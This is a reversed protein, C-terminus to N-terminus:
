AQAPAMQVEPAETFQRRSAVVLAVAVIAFGVATLLLRQEAPVGPLLIPLAVNAAGHMLTAAVVSRTGLYLWTLMFSIPIVWLTFAVIPGGYSPWGPVLYLPFHWAAWALAVIVTAILPSWRRVLHDLMFGRWGIEEGIVLVFIIIEAVTISGPLAPMPNGTAVYIGLAILTALFPLGLAALYWLPSFRLRSIRSWLERLGQRGNWLIAAIVAAVAPGFLALLGFVLSVNVLATLAWTILCALVYYTVVPHEHLTARLRELGM